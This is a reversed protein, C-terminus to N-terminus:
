VEIKAERIVRFKKVRKQMSVIIILVFCFSLFIAVWEFIPITVFFRFLINVASVFFGFKATNRTFKFKYLAIAPFLTSFASVTFLAAAWTMHIEFIDLPYIGIMVMSFASIFGSIQTLITFVKNRRGGLYWEYLGFFFFFLSIGSFISGLNFFYAGNPNCAFCGLDSMWNVFPNYDGPYLAFSFLAFSWFVVTAAIGSVVSIPIRRPIPLEKVFDKAGEIGNASRTLGNRLERKFGNVGNNVGQKLTEFQKSLRQRIKGM